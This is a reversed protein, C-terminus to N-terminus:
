KWRRELTLTARADDSLEADGDMEFITRFGAGIWFRLAPWNKLSVEAWARAQDPLCRPWQEGLGRVIEAGYGQGQWAPDVVFMSIYVVDPFRPAVVTHYYGVLVGDEKRWAAQMHFLRDPDQARTVSKVVLEQVESREVVQFVSDWKGFHANANYLATLADVDRESVDRLILRETEWETPLMHM